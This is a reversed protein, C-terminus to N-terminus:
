RFSIMHTSQRYRWKKSKSMLIYVQSIVHQLWTYIPCRCQNKFSRMQELSNGCVFMLIKFLLKFFYILEAWNLRETTDSEKRGWSGCYVLGGQGDDVGRTEGFGHGNLRDQWGVMENETKGWCSYVFRFKSFIHLNAVKEWSTQALNHPNQSHIYM